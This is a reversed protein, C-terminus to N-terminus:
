RVRKSEPLAEPNLTDEAPAARRVEGFLPLDDGLAAAGLVTAAPETVCNVPEAATIWGVRQRYLEESDRPVVWANSLIGATTTLLLDSRGLVNNIPTELALDVRNQHGLNLGQRLNIGLECSGLSISSAIDIVPEIASVGAIQSLGLNAVHDVIQTAGPAGYGPAREYLRLEARLPTVGNNDQESSSRSGLFRIDDGNQRTGWLPNETQRSDDLGQLPHGYFRRDVEEVIEEDSKENPSGSGWGAGGNAAWITREWAVYRSAELSKQKIDQYKGLVPISVFLPVFVVMSVLTEAM